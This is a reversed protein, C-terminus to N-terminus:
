DYTPSTPLDTILEPYYKHMGLKAKRGETFLGWHGETGNGKWSEDFAEFWFVTVKNDQSWKMLEDFYKKQNIENGVKPVHFEGKTYSAWGAETIVIKKNPIAERLKNYVDITSNMAEGIDIMGWIPYIHIALFDVADILKKSKELDIWYDWTDATTVPVDVKSKVYNIYFILNENPVKHDSWHIQSENGVNVAIVIDKYKNALSIGFEIQQKNDDIYEPEADMWIGLMVKLNINERDIIELIDSLHQDAGYVRIIKWNKEIIKLDETVEDQSPFIKIRPDQGERYGSYAIAWGIWDEGMLSIENKRDVNEQPSCSILWLAFFSILCFKFNDLM